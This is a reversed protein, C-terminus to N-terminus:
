NFFLLKIGSALIVITLLLKVWRTGKKLATHAGIYGGIIGGGALPLALSWDITGEHLYTLMAVFNAILAVPFSTANAETVTLGFFYVFAYIMFIGGGGFVTSYLLIVAMIPLGLLLRRNSRKARIIGSDKKLWLIPLMVLLLGGVLKQVTNEDIGLLLKPGIIGALIALFFFWIVYRWLVAGDKAYRYTATIGGALFNLRSTAIATIPSAGLFILGPITILGGGSAIAGVFAALFGILFAALFDM